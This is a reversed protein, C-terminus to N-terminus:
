KGLIPGHLNICPWLINAILTQMPTILTKFFEYNQELLKMKWQFKQYMLGYGRERKMDLVAMTVQFQIHQLFYPVYKDKIM